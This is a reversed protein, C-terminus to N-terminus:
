PLDIWNMALLCALGALPPFLFSSAMRLALFRGGMMPLEYNLTRHFAWISWGTLLATLQPAGAGAKYFAVAIPFSIFPGGPLLAGALSALLIGGLGSESGMAAQMLEKPMIEVLFAGLLLALPLRLLMTRGQGASFQLAKGITGPPRRLAIGGLILVLGWVLINSAIV